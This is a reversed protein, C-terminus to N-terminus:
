NRSITNDVFTLCGSYIATLDHANGLLLLLLLSRSPLLISRPHLVVASDGISLAPMSIYGFGLLLLALVLDPYLLSYRTIDTPKQKDKNQQLQFFNCWACQLSRSTATFKSTKYHFHM